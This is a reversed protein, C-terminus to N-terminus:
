TPLEIKKILTVKTGQSPTSLIETSDMFSEMVTFGMGSREEDPKTTFLPERAKSIDKIGVGHDIVVIELTSDDYVQCELWIKEGQCDEYAHIICNSVAESVATKIESLQDITPDLQAAFAAAITRAVFENESKCDLEVKIKNVCEM